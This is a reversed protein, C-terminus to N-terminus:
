VVIRNLHDFITNSKMENNLERETDISYPHFTNLREVISHFLNPDPQLNLTRIIRITFNAQITFTRSLILFIQVYSLTQPKNNM